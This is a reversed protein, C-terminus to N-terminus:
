DSQLAVAPDVSAARRAPLWSAGIAVAALVIAVVVLTAPDGPEVGFLLSRLARTAFVAGAVGIAIGGAALVAGERLVMGLVDSRRAGLAMRVGIERTRRGVAYAIVGYIGVAGLALAVVAFSLLLSATVRPRAVDDALRQEMTRVDSVPIGPDIAALASRVAAVADATGAGGRAAGARVVISMAAEPAQHFPRYIAPEVELALGGERTDRVVGVVTLWDSPWPYGIRKGIPDENPWFRRVMAENVVVVDPTGARDSAELGRGRVVPVGMAPLYGPTVVQYYLMPLNGPDLDADEVRTAMLGSRGRLPLQSTAGVRGIGPVAAVRDIISEWLAIRRAPESYRTAVPDLRATVLDATPFGPDVRRMADFSRLLLAAGAVLIVALAIEAVVLAGSLRRQARGIGSGRAGDGLVTAPPAASARLAPLVGFAIGTTVALTLTFALVRPNLAVEALRPTDAPLFARLLDIGATAVVTGAAAGLLALLLSEAVMHRVLRARGAGLATRIAVERSRGLARALTLNAVNVCAILLVAGTAGLLILLLARTDGVMADRLAVLEIGATYGEAPRWLPNELRVQEAITEVEARATAISTGPRVRGIIELGHWGWFDGPNAENMQATVWLQTRSSPLRFGAPVVGAVTHARGDLEITRGVIARDAGFRSRWLADSLLVTPESGPAEHESTIGAGITPAIGLMPLLGATIYAGTIREAEGHGSLSFGGESGYAALETFSRAREHLRSFEAKSHSRGSWVSLLSGPDRYPLSRLLVGDVVAFIAANAGIGLALTLVAVATFGPTRRLARAAHRLDAVLTDM